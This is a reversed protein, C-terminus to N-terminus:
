EEGSSDIYDAPIMEPRRMKFQPVRVPRRRKKTGDSSSIIIVDEQTNILGIDEEHPLLYKDQYVEVEDSDLIRPCVLRVKEVLDRIKKAEPGLLVMMFKSHPSELNKRVDLKIRRKDQDSM